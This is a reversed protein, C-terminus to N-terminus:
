FGESSIAERLRVLLRPRMLVKYLFCKREEAKRGTKPKSYSRTWRSAPQCRQDLTHVSLQVPVGSSVITWARQGYAVSLANLKRGAGCSEACYHKISGRTKIHNIHLLWWTFISLDSDSGARPWILRSLYRLGAHLPQDLHDFCAGIWM